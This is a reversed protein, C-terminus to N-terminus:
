FQVFFDFLCVFLVGEIELISSHMEGLHHQSLIENRYVDHQGPIQNTAGLSRSNGVGALAPIEPM